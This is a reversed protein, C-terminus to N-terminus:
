PTCCTSIRNITIAPPMLRTTTRTTPAMRATTNHPWRWPGCSSQGARLRRGRGASMPILARRCLARGGGLQVGPSNSSPMPVSIFTASRSAPTANTATSIKPMIKPRRFLSSQGATSRLLPLRAQRASPCEGGAQCSAVAPPNFVPRTTPHRPSLSSFSFRPGVRVDSGALCGGAGRCPPWGPSLNCVPHRPLSPFSLLRRFSSDRRGDPSAVPPASPFGAFRM